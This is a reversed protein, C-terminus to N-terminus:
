TYLFHSIWAGFAGEAGVILGFLVDYVSWQYGLDYDGFVIKTLLIALIVGMVLPHINSKHNPILGGLFGIGFAFLHRIPDYIQSPFRM